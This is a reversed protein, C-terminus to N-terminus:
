HSPQPSQIEYVFDGQAQHVLHLTPSRELTWRDTEEWRARDFGQELTHVILYRVGQRGLERLAALARDDPFSALEADLQQQRAPTFGSYGNVLGKWHLTSGYLRKTEPYEPRPAVYIPWELVGFDGPQDALWRCVQPLDAMAGVQALPLPASWSELVLLAALCVFLAVRAARRVHSRTHSRGATLGPVHGAAPACVGLVARAGYGVLIALPLAAAIMWRPPVRILSFLPSLRALWGYPLPLLHEGLRLYPGWSLVWAGLAIVAWTLVLIPAQVSRPQGICATQAPLPALNSRQARLSMVPPPLSRRRRRWADWLALLALAPAIMGMFMFNEETFLPRNALPATLPGFTRNWNPAALYDTPHPSFAAAVELPRAAQLQDAVELYPPILPWCLAAVVVLAAVLRLLSIWRGGREARFWWGVLYILLIYGSFVALHWSSVIQLWFLVVFAATPGITHLAFGNKALAQRPALARVNEADSLTAPGAASPQPSLASPKLTKELCLLAFPLWQFTLLQLHSFATLRYPAHAFAMGALFAAAGSRTYRRVLLYTGWAGLAFSFIFALNYAAVPEGTLLLLPLVTVSVGLLHESFALTNPLPYFINAQFLDLPSRTLAHADWALIWTNLLPDGIDSPVASALNLWLPHTAAIAILVYLFLIALASWNQTRAPPQKAGSAIVPQKANPELHRPADSM